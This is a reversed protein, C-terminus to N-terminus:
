PVARVAASPGASSTARARRSTMAFENPARGSPPLVAPLPVGTRRRRFKSFPALAAGSCTRSPPASAVKAWHGAIGKDLSTLATIVFNHCEKNLTTLSICGCTNPSLWLSGRSFHTHQGRHANLEKGPLHVRIPSSIFPLPPGQSWPRHTSSTRPCDSRLFLVQAIFSFFYVRDTHKVGSLYLTMKTRFRM